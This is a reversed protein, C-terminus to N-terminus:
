AQGHIGGEHSRALHVHLRIVALAPHPFSLLTRDGERLHKVGEGVTIVRGAGKRVLLPRLQPIVRKLDKYGSFGEARMARM